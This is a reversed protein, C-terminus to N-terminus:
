KFERRSFIVCSIVLYFFIFAVAYLMSFRILENSTEIGHVVRARINFNELNPVTYYIGSIIQALFDNGGQRIKEAYLLIDYSLKGTVTVIITSVASVFPTSFSSFLISIALVVAVEFFILVVAWVYLPSVSVRTLIQVLLGCLGLFATNLLLTFALGFYKGAVFQWRMVPKSLIVYVTRRDVEKHILSTGLFVAILLGFLSIIALTFDQIVKRRELSSWESVFYSLALMVLAFFIINYLVKNRVCERFTNKAIMFITSM